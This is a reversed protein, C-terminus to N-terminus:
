DRYSGLLTAIRDPCPPMRLLSPAGVRDSPPRLDIAFPASRPTDSDVAVERDRALRLGLFRDHFSPPASDRSASRCKLLHSASGGGRYVRDTGGEHPRGDTPATEYSLYTDAVWESVNGHVGRLGWPNPQKTLVGHTVLESNWCWWVYPAADACAQCESKCEPRDVFFFRGTGGARAAFEWESESPLRFPAAGALSSLRGLFSSALCASATAGGCIEDWGVDTVPCDGICSAPPASGVGMVAEWQGRTVEATGLWFDRAITVPHWWEDALRGEEDGLSGMEFSGRAICAFPFDVGGITWTASGCSGSGAKPLVVVAARFSRGFTGAPLSDAARWVIRRGHGNPVGGGVDGSLTAPDPVISFSAGCDASVALVLDATADPGALDYVVEVTGDALQSGLVNSAAGARASGPLLAFVITALVASGSPMDSRKM